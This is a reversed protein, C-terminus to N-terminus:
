VIGQPSGNAGVSDLFWALWGAPRGSQRIRREEM